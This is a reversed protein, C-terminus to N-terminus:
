NKNQDICTKIERLEKASIKAPPAGQYPSPNGKFDVVANEVVATTEKAKTGAAKAAAAPSSYFALSFGVGAPSTGDIQTQSPQVIFEDDILCNGVSVGNVGGGGNPRNGLGSGGASSGSSSRGCGAAVLGLFALLALLATTRTLRTM